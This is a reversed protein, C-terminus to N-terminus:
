FNLLILNKKTLKLKSQSQPDTARDTPMKERCHMIIVFLFDVSKSTNKACKLVEVFILFKQVCIKTIKLMYMGQPRTLDWM